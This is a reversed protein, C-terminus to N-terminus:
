NPTFEEAVQFYACGEFKLSLILSGGQLARELNYTM